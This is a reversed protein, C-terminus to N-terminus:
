IEYSFNRITIEIKNFFTRLRSLNNSKEIKDLKIFQEKYTIILLQPNGYHLKLLEVAELYNQNTLTLGSITEYASPCM